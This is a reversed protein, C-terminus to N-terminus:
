TSVLAQMLQNLKLGISKPGREAGRDADGEKEGEEEGDDARPIGYDIGRLYLIRVFSM